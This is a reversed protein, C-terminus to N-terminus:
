SSSIQDVSLIKFVEYCMVRKTTALDLILRIVVDNTSKVLPNLLVGSLTYYSSYEAM